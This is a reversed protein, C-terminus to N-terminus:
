KIYEHLLEKLPDVDSGSFGTHSHKTWGESYKWKGSLKGADEGMKKLSKIYSRQGQTKDLWERQSKHCELMVTKKEMVPEINVYFGANVQKGFRDKLGYPMAHYIVVDQTTISTRPITKYNPMNRQFAATVTLRATNMHDEMYDELAPVLLIDPKMKRVTATLKMLTKKEYFVELDHCISKHYWAGLFRAANISENKRVRATKKKSLVMSGQCGDALNMYHINCGKEQLLFATGSMM